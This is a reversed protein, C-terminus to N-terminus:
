MENIVDLKLPWNLLLVEILYMANRRQKLARAPLNELWIHMYQREYSRTYM